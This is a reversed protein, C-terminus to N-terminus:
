SYKIYYVKLVPIRDHKGQLITRSPITNMADDNYSSFKNLAFKFPNFSILAFMFMCLVFKSQDLMGGRGPIDEESEEKISTQYEPSSPLSHPPSLNSIDSPPPTHDNRFDSTQMDEVTPSLLDKLTNKRAAMKLAM